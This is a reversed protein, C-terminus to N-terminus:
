RRFPMGFLVDSVHVLTSMQNSLNTVEEIFNTGIISLPLALMVLGVLMTIAGVLQGLYTVPVVDGYGVTTLTVMCWWFSHPISQFPSPANGEPLGGGWYYVDPSRYYYNKTADWTGREMYYIASSFVILVLVLVIVFLQLADSSAELAKKVVTFGTSYRSLKLLRFSRALRLIKLSEGGGSALSIYFPLVAVLDVWNMPSTAFDLFVPCSIMRLLFEISFCMVFFVEFGFWLAEEDRWRPVTEIVCVIGSLVILAMIVMSLFFAFVSGDPDEFAAWLFKRFGTFGESHFSGPPVAAEGATTSEPAPAVAAGSAGEEATDPITSPDPWFNRDFISPPGTKKKRMLQLSPFRNQTFFLALECLRDPRCEPTERM